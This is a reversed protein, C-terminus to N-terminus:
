KFWSLFAKGNPGVVHTYLTFQPNPAMAKDLRFVLEELHSVPRLSKSQKPKLVMKTVTFM